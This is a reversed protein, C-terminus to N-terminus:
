GSPEEVPMPGPVVPQGDDPEPHPELPEEDVPAVNGGDSGAESILGKARLSRDVLSPTLAPQVPPPAQELQIDRKFIKVSARLVEEGVADILALGLANSKAANSVNSSSLKLIKNHTSEQDERSLNQLLAFAIIPLEMSAQPFSIEAMVEEVVRARKKARERDVQRDLVELLVELISSPGVSVDRDGARFIFLSSRFLMMAGLGATLVQVWRLRLPDDGMGFTVGFLRVLWLALLSATVNLAIYFAAFWTKISELPADRYRSMLETSGILLGFIGAVVFDWFVDAFIM